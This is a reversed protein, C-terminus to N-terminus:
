RLATKPRQKKLAAEASPPVPADGKAKGGMKRLGAGVSSVKADITKFVKKVASASAAVPKRVMAKAKSGVRLATKPRQKKLAAEASPPVAAEARTPVAAVESSGVFSKSPTVSADGQSRVAKIDPFWAAADINDDKPCYYNRPRPKANLPEGLKLRSTELKEDTVKPPNKQMEEFECALKYALTLDPTRKLAAQQRAADLFPLFPINQKNHKLFHDVICRDVVRVDYFRYLPSRETHAIMRICSQQKGQPSVGEEWHKILYSLLTDCYLPVCSDCDPMLKNPWIVDTRIHDCDMEKAMASRLEKMTLEGDAPFPLELSFRCSFDLEPAVFGRSCEQM